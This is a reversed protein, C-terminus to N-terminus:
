KQYKLPGIKKNVFFLDENSIKEETILFLNMSVNKKNNEFPLCLFSNGYTSIVVLNRDKFNIVPYDSRSWATLLGYGYSCSLYILISITLIIPFLGFKEQILDLPDNKKKRLKKDLLFGIAVGIIIVVVWIYHFKIFIELILCSSLLLTLAILSFWVNREKHKETSLSSFILYFVELVFLLLFPTTSLIDNFNIDVFSRNIHFFSLYAWKYLYAGLYATATFVAVIIAESIYKKSKDKQM